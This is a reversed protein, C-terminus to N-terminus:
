VGRDTGTHAIWDLVEDPTSVERREPLQPRDIMVVPLDLMRAADIKSRAGDGGSNKSVVLNIQHRKLLAIDGDVSFPGKDVIVDHSPFPPPGDPPDVLRLLYHHQPRSAFRAVETRGIALFVRLPDIDLAAVAHEMDPAEIWADEENPEWAPRTLAILPIGTQRSAAIANRSIQDAFPHTADILHTIRSMELYEALGDPGGFGGIRTPIPLAQPSSTRGAYSYIANFGAVAVEKALLRAESTGGLTLLLPGNSVDLQSVITPRPSSPGSPSGEALRRATSSASIMM